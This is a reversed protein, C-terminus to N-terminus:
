IGMLYNLGGDSNKTRTTNKIVNLIQDKDMGKDMMLLAEDLTAMVEARRQPNDDIVIKKLLDDSIKDQYKAYIQENTLGMPEKMGVDAAAEM